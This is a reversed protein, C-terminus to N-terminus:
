LRDGSGSRKVPGIVKTDGFPAPGDPANEVASRASSAWGAIRDGPEASTWLHRMEACTALLDDLSGAAAVRGDQLVLICDARRLVARRHSVVLCTAPRAAFLRDWLLQETEVDLASSLDDFVLLEPQRVFMRAAAARQMQGGSLRVGKPGVPTALGQPMASLDAELVASYIAAQLDVQDPPLGLLINDALSESFLRPVQPTYACRPPVLFAAPDAVLGGNWCITGADHPLLGLLVRLLTTKGAGIRGTIVTLSGRKLRLDVQTIGFESGPYRYSLGRVELTDLRHADSRAMYPVSPLPGHAYIPGPEVLREAPEDDLLLAMREFSVSMQKHWALLRGIVRPLIMITGQYSVFLAFDGVTFSGRPLASAGLILVAGTALNGTHQNFSDILQTLLSDRLAVRRRRENLAQFHGVAHIEAGAIKVAQVAGFLEGLFGTVREAAQRHAHRYQKIRGSLTNVATVTALLPLFVGLAIVPNIGIMVGLAALAFVAQAIVDIWVDLYNLVEDVDDRFRSIAEGPSDPLGRGSTNRIIGALLNKRLLAYGGFWFEAFLSFWSSFATLRAAEAGLWLGILTWVNLGTPAPGSLTDFFARLVLGGALRLALALTWLLVTSFYLWPRYCVLRWVLKAANVTM